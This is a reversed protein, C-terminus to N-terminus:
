PPPAFMKTTIVGTWPLSRISLTPGKPDKVAHFDAYVASITVPRDTLLTVECDVKFTRAGSPWPAPNAPRATGCPTAGVEIAMGQRADAGQSTSTGSAEIVYRGATMAPIQCQTEAASVVKCASAPITPQSYGAFARPLGAPAAQALVAGGVLSLAAGFILSRM